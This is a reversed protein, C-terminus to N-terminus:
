EKELRKQKDRLSKKKLDCINYIETFLKDINAIIRPWADFSFYNSKIYLKISFLSHLQKEGIVFISKTSSAEM